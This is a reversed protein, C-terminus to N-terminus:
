SNEEHVLFVQGWGRLEVTATLLVMYEGFCPFMGAKMVFHENIAGWDWRSSFVATGWPLLKPTELGPM